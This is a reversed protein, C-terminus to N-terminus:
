KSLLYTIFVNVWDLKWHQFKQEKVAIEQIEQCRDVLIELFKSRNANSIQIVTLTYFSRFTWDFSLVFPIKVKLFNESNAALNHNDPFIKYM